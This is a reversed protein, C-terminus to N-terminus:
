HLGATTSLVPATLQSFRVSSYHLFGSLLPLSLPIPPPLLLLFLWRHKDSASPTGRMAESCCWGLCESRKWGNRCMEIM